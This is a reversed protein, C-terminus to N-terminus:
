KFITGLIVFQINGEFSICDKHALLLCISFQIWLERNKGFEGGISCTNEIVDTNRDDNDEHDDENETLTDETIKQTRLCNRKPM